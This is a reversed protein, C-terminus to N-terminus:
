RVTRLSTRSSTTGPSATALPAVCGIARSAGLMQCVDKDGFMARADVLQSYLENFTKELVFTRRQIMRCGSRQEEDVEQLASRVATKM